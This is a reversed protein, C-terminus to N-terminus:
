LAAELSSVREPYFRRISPEFLQWLAWLAKRDFNAAYNETWYSRHSNKTPIPVANVFKGVFSELRSTSEDLRDILDEYRLIMSANDERLTALWKANEQM